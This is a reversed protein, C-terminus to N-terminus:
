EHLAEGVLYKYAIKEKLLDARLASRKLLLNQLKLESQLLEIYTTNGLGYSKSAIDRSNEAFKITKENLINLENDIKAMEHKTKALESQKYVQYNNLEKERAMKEYAAQTHNAYRTSSLPLPFSVMASVFDGHDDLDARKTYGISVTLDPVYALKSATLVKEQAQVKTRLNLEKKDLYNAEGVTVIEWPISSLVLKDRFGLLYGLRDQNQKKEYQKNSLSAELESKRIQIDLLAQQSIKGNSYLKNSVSLIKEIWNLNEVLIKEEEDLKKLDILVTWFIKLLERKRDESEYDKAKGLLEYAEQLTGYKPTLAITQSLSLEVGTMPSEDNALSDRPFNKAAISLRPDGWSGKSRGEQELVQAQAELNKVSSHEFIQKVAQKFTYASVSPVM